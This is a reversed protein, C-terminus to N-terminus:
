IVHVLFILAFFPVCHLMSNAVGACQLGPACIREAGVQLYASPKVSLAAAVSKGPSLTEADETAAGGLLDSYIFRLSVGM